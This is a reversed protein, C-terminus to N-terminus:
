KSSSHHIRQSKFVRQGSVKLFLHVKGVAKDNKRGALVSLLEEQFPLGEPKDYMYILLETDTDFFEIEKELKSLNKELVSRPLGEGEAEFFKEIDPLCEHVLVAHETRILM